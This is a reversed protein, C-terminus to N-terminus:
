LLDYSASNRDIWSCALGLGLGLWIRSAFWRGLRRSSWGLRFRALCRASWALGPARCALRRGRAGARFGQRDGLVRVAASFCRTAVAEEHNGGYQSRYSVDIRKSVGIHDLATDGGKVQWGVSKSPLLRPHALSAAESRPTSQVEGHSPGLGCGGASLWQSQECDRLPAWPNASGAAQSSTPASRRSV